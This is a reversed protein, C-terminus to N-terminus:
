PMFFCTLSIECSLNKAENMEWQEYSQYYRWLSVTGEFDMKGDTYADKGYYRFGGDTYCDNGGSDVYYGKIYEGAAFCVERMFLEGPKLEVLTMSQDFLSHGQLRGLAYGDETKLDISFENPETYGM